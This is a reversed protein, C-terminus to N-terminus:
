AETKADSNIVSRIYDLIDEIKGRATFLFLAPHWLFLLPKLTRSRTPIALLAFVYIPLDLEKLLKLVDGRSFPMGSFKPREDLADAIIYIPALGLVKILVTWRTSVQSFILIPTLGTM